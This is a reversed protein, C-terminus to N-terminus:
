PSYRGSSSLRQDDWKRPSEIIPPTIAVAVKDVRARDIDAVEFRFCNWSVTDGEKPVKRMTDIILGGITTYASPKYLDEM